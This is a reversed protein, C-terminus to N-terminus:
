QKVSGAALDSVLKRQLLMFLVLTPLTSIVSATM